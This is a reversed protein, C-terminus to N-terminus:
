VCSQGLVIESSEAPVAVSPPYPPRTFLTLQWTRLPAEHANANFRRCVFRGFAAYDTLRYPVQMWLTNRFGGENLTGPAVSQVPDVTSGDARLGTAVWRRSSIGGVFLGIKLDLGLSALVRRTGPVMHTPAVPDVVTLVFLVSVVLLVIARRSSIATEHPMGRVHLFRGSEGLRRAVFDFWEPLLWLTTAALMVNTFIGVKLTMLIGFQLGVHCIVALLRAPKNLVPLVFLVPILLEIIITSTTLLACLTPYQALFAGVPRVWGHLHLDQYILPGNLWAGGSTSLKARATELYLAVPLYMMLRPVLAHVDSREGRRRSDLSWRASLDTFVSFFLLCAAVTDGGTQVLVARHQLSISVAWMVLAATRTRYGVVFAIAALVGVALIATALATSNGTLNFLSWDSFGGSSRPLFGNDTLFADVDGFRAAFDELIALGLLIRLAALPRTDFRGLWHAPKYPNESSAGVALPSSRTM